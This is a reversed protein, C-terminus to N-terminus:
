FALAVGGAGVIVGLIFGGIGAKWVWGEAREARRLNEDARKDSAAALDRYTNVAQQQLDVVKEISTLIKDQAATLHQIADVQGQLAAITQADKAVLANLDKILVRAAELEQLAQLVERQEPVSLPPEAGWAPGCVLLALV